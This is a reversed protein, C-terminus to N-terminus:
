KQDLGDDTLQDQGLQTASRLDPVGAHHEELHHQQGAISVGVSGAGLQVQAPLEEDMADQQHQRQEDQQGPALREVNALFGMGAVKSNSTVTTPSGKKTTEM